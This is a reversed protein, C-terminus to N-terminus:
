SAKERRPGTRFTWQGGTGEPYSYRDDYWAIGPAGKKHIGCVPRGNVDESKASVGCYAPGIWVNGVPFMCRASM